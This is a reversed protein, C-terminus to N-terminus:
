GDGTVQMSPQDHALRSPSAPCTNCDLWIAEDSRESPTPCMESTVPSTGLFAAEAQGTRRLWRM